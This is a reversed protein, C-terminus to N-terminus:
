HLKFLKAQNNEYLSPEFRRELVKTFSEWSTFQVNQYMRNYWSLADWKM